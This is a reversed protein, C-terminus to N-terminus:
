KGACIRKFSPVDFSQYKADDIKTQESDLNLHNVTYASAPANLIDESKLLEYKASVFPM